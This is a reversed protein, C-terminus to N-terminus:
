HKSRTSPKMSCRRSPTVRLGSNKLRTGSGLSIELQCGAQRQDIPAFGEECLKAASFGRTRLELAKLASEGYGGMRLLVSDAGLRKLEHACVGASRMEAASFGVSWLDSVKADVLRLEVATYGAGKLQALSFGSDLLQKASPGDKLEKLEKARCGAQRMESCSYGATYLEETNYGIMKAETSACGLARLEALAFNASRLEAFSFGADHLETATYGVRALQQADYGGSTKMEAAPIEKKRMAFATFGAERLEGASFKARRLNDIDTFGTAHIEVATCGAKRLVLTTVGAAKLEKVTYGSRLLQTIGFGSAIMESVKYGGKRLDAVDFGVEVLEGPDIKAARMDKASFLLGLAAPRVGAEKMELATYGADCLDVLSFSWAKTAVIAPMGADRMEKLAIGAAALQDCSYGVGLLGRPHLLSDKVDTSSLHGELLLEVVRAEWEARSVVGNVCDEVLRMAADKSAEQMAVKEARRAAALTSESGVVKSDINIKRLVDAIRLLEDRNPGGRYLFYPAMEMLVQAASARSRRLSSLPVLFGGNFFKITKCQRLAAADTSLRKLFVAGKAQAGDWRIGGRALDLHEVKSPYLADFLPGIEAETLPIVCAFDTIEGSRLSELPLGSGMQLLEHAKAGLSLDRQHAHLVIEVWLVLASFVGALLSLPIYHGSQQLFEIPERHESPHHAAHLANLYLFTQLFMQPLTQWITLTLLRASSYHPMLRVTDLGPLISCCKDATRDGNPAKAIDLVDLLM